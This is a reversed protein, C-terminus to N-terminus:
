LKAPTEPPLRERLKVIATLIRDRNKASRIWPPLRSALSRNRPSGAPVNEPRERLTASVFADLYDLHERNYAWLTEGCCPIALWVPYHFYWDFPAGICIVNAPPPRNGWGYQIGSRSGKWAENRGCAPCVFRVHQDKEYVFSRAQCKPCAVLFSGGFSDITKRLDRFRSPM